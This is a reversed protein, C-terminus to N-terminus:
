LADELEGAAVASPAPAADAVNAEDAGVGLVAASAADAAVTDNARAAPQPPMGAPPPALRRPPPRRDPLQQLETDGPNLVVLTYPLEGHSSQRAPSSLTLDSNSRSLQATGDGHATITVATIRSMKAFGSGSWADVAANYQEIKPSRTDHGSDVLLYAGYIGTALLM